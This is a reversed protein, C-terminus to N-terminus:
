RTWAEEGEKADKEPLRRLQCVAKGV